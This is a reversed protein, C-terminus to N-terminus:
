HASVSKWVQLHLRGCTWGDDTGTQQELCKQRKLYSICFAWVIFFMALDCVTYTAYHAWCKPKRIETIRWWTSHTSMFTVGSLRWINRCSSFSNSAIRFHERMAIYSVPTLLILRLWVGCIVPLIHALDSCEWTWYSM